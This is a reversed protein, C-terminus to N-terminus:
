NVNCKLAVNENPFRRVRMQKCCESEVGFRLNMVEAAAAAAAAAAGAEAEEAREVGGM